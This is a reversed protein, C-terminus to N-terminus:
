AMPTLDSFAPRPLHDGPVRRPLGDMTSETEALPTEPPAAEPSTPDLRTARDPIRANTRSPVPGRVNRAQGPAPLARWAPIPTLKRVERAPEDQRSAPAPSGATAPTATEPSAIRMTVADIMWEEIEISDQDPSFAVRLDARTASGITFFFMMATVILGLVLTPVAYTMPSIGAVRAVNGDVAPSVTVAYQALYQTGCIGLGCATGALVGLGVRRVSRIVMTLAVAITIAIVAAGALYVPRYTVAGATRISALATAPMAVLGVTLLAAGVARRTGTKGAAEALGGGIMLLAIVPGLVLPIVDLRIASGTVSMGMVAVITSQWGATFVLAVTAYTLLRGRGPARRRAKAFLLVCLVSGAIASIAAVAPTIAGLQFHNIEAM